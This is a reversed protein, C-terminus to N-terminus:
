SIEAVAALQRAIAGIDGAGQTILIDGDRLIQELNTEVQDKQGIYFANKHGAQQLAAVLSRSNVEALEAESASYIDLMLVVDTQGLAAVFEAFLDRTRSYRHPQYLMVIRQKPWTERAAKIVVAIERPHHGYDDVLLAKGHAHVFEGCLQFRRGVGSFKELASQIVPIPIQLDRAVAIVALANLVNHEGALNLSVDFQDEPSPGIVTFENVIGRQSRNIARWDAKNQIGYTTVPRKVNPLVSQVGPDDVCMVALGYFPLQHLFKIFTDQLQLYDNNYTDMHDLDINTVVAIMPNLFLFSADSEDAEAIFYHGSGLSANVGSSNLKGGIVYTPDTGAEALVATSLSTTTTKGHTGSIAIGYSFRMLEALMEARPVVPIHLERAAQLEINTEAIASSIVIVQADRVNEPAHKLVVRAGLAQLRDTMLSRAEDSGSISYGKNLLVEAIGGMGAGGIGIFHIRNIRQMRFDQMQSM